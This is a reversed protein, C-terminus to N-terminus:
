GDVLETEKLLTLDDDRNTGSLWWDMVEQGDKWKTELGRKNREALMREFSRLYANRYKPYNAFETTATNPNMPCGICGLRKYGLDYLKCHPIGRLAHFEWVDEDTWDIIPNFLTKRTRYCQEVIRRSEDNDDNLVMGNRNDGIDVLNRNNKRRASEARRVGTVTVRGVGSREKFIECCYRVIRTPPMLKRPILNWMTIARGDKDRPTDFTVDTHELRIYYILEPPDVSTVSYHAEFKVGAMKALELIVDSDKGGSYAIWYGDPPEFAKYADIAIQVKDIKGFLTQEILM